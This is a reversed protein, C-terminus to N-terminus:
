VEHLVAYVKMGHKRVTQLVEKTSGPVSPWNLAGSVFLLNKGKLQAYRKEQAAQDGEMTRKKLLILWSYIYCPNIFWNTMFHAIQVIVVAM